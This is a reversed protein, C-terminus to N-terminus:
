VVLVQGEDAMSVKPKRSNDPVFEEISPGDKNLRCAYEAKISMGSTVATLFRHLTWMTAFSCNFFCQILVM